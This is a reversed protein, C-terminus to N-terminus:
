GVNTEGGVVGHIEDLLQEFNNLNKEAFNIDRLLDDDGAGCGAARIIRWARRFEDRIAVIGNHTVTRAVNHDLEFPDEIAFLYRLRIEKFNRSQTTPQGLHQESDDNLPQQRCRDASLSRQITSAHRTGDAQVEFVTKAGTWGKEQKTLLGGHTRISIVDRGWDFGKISVSSMMGSQAFYEFFGRLLHGLSDNNSNLQNNHALQLIEDENRWFHINYGRCLTSLEVDSQSMTTPLKPALQQLNPCVFPRAINVLYHLVMLVYGYSSLTGRYGSNIGRIKAWQKVFLIMPRVRPDTHSYCRLLLTNQLALHASFNIDCQVGVGTKPFELADHYKNQSQGSLLTQLGPLAKVTRVVSSLMAPIPVFFGPSPSECLDRYLPSRLIVIYERINAAHIADYIDKDLIKDLEHALHLSKHKCAAARVHRHDPFHTMYSTVSKRINEDYIGATYLRAMEDKMEQNLEEFRLVAMIDKVGTHYQSPTEYQGQALLLLRMLPTKKVNDLAAQLDKTYAVPDKGFIHKEQNDHWFAFAQTTQAIASTICDKFPWAEWAQYCEEGEAQIFVALLSRNPPKTNCRLESLVPPYRLLHQRLAADSLGQVFAQCVRNLITWDQDTFSSSNSATIDRGGARRLVCKASSYYATLSQKPEQKLHFCRTEHNHNYAIEFAGSLGTGANSPVSMVPDNKNADKDRDDNYVADIFDNALGKEWKEREALLNRRLGDPPKECLKIIPIRTRSLLRAGLGADLFAKEILRPILSGNADPQVASFPSLLGLDMDSTKTAFGSALSGFCKLEVSLPSFVRTVVQEEYSTIAQRCITEIRQRFCEKEVIESKEIESEFVVQNSIIDLYSAQNSIEELSFFTRCQSQNASATAHSAYLTRADMPHWSSGYENIYPQGPFRYISTAHSPVYKPWRSHHHSALTQGSVHRAQSETMTHKQHQFSPTSRALHQEQVPMHSRLDPVVSLQANMQRRQAQNPRKKATKPSHRRHQGTQSTYEGHGHSIGHSVYRLETNSGTSAEATIPGVFQQSSLAQQPQSLATSIVSAYPSTPTNTLILSHLRGELEPSLGATDSLFSEGHSSAM